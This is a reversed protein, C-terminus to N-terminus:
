VATKWRPRSLRLAQVVLRAPAAGPHRSQVPQAPLELRGGHGARSRHASGDGGRRRRCQSDPAARLHRRSLGAEQCRDHGSRRCHRRGRCGRRGAQAAPQRRAARGADAAGLTMEAFPISGEKGDATGIVVRDNEVKLVVAVQWGPQGLPPRAEVQKALEAKWNDVASLKAIPGRWGHRRDYAVLGDRLAKDVVPQSKPISRRAFRWAAKTCPRNRRLAHLDASASGRRFFRRQGNRVEAPPAVAPVRSRAAAAEQANIYGDELM